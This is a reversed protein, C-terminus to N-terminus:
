SAVFFDSVFPSGEFRLVRKLNTKRLDAVVMVAVGVQRL